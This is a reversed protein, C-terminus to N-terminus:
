FIEFFREFYKTDISLIEFYKSTCNREFSKMYIKQQHLKQWKIIEVELEEIMELEELRQESNKLNEIEVSETLQDIALKM